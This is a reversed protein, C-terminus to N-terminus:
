RKLKDLADKFRIFEEACGGNDPHSQIMAIKLADQIIDNNITTDSQRIFTNNFQNKIYQDRLLQELGRIHHKAAKYNHKAAKYNHMLKNYDDLLNNYNNASTISAQVMAINFLVSFGLIIFLSIDYLM